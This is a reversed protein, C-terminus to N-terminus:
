LQAIIGKVLRQLKGGAEQAMAMVKEHDVEVPHHGVAMDTICSIGLVEMGAHCAVLVEPITSMGVAHGGIKALFVLEAPTEFNPGAVGVYVGQRLTIGQKSAQELALAQLEKSYANIVDPFRHGLDPDNPGILPNDGMLNIHDTILMLDGPSFELNMGGAANTVLLTKIGLAQMVRIPFTIEQMSHGEYYHFRGQMVVVTRGELSGFVLRGAHGEVTAQPFHPIERYPIVVQETIGEVLGGLGTGLIVGVDVRYRFKNQLYNAAFEMKARLNNM